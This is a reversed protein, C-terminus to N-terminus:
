FINMNEYLVKSRLLNDTIGLVVPILFYFLATIGPSLAGLQHIVTTRIEIIFHTNDERKQAEIDKKSSLSKFADKLSLEGDTLLLGDILKTFPKYDVQYKLHTLAESVSDNRLNNLAEAIPVSFLNSIELMWTLVKEANSNKQSTLVSIITAFSMTEDNLFVERKIKSLYYIRFDEYKYALFLCIILIVIKDLINKRIIELQKIKAMVRMARYSESIVDKIGESVLYRELEILSLEHRIVLDILMLDEDITEKIQDDTMGGKMEVLVDYVYENELGISLSEKTDKILNIHSSLLYISMVAGVLLSIILKRLIHYEIKEITGSFMMRQKILRAKHSGQKPTLFKLVQKVTKKKMLYLELKHSSTLSNRMHSDTFSESIYYAFVMVLLCLIFIMDGVSSNFYAYILESKMSQGYYVSLSKLVPILVIPSLIFLDEFIVEKKINSLKRLENNMEKIFQIM